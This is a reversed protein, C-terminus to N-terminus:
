LLKKLYRGTYSKSSAAVEKPTGTVVVEGGNDGGEPGIDIVHDAVKVVDLNHEIVILSNGKEVLRNLVSLLRQIDDFHLGTTPEDLIYMTRGTARRSLETALKIRQAEGGSLTTASQGLRMYSLGVDSLTKLKDHISPINEFFTLAYEVTMDLVQAINKGKYEVELADDNYRLGKCEECEVYVDPLFHMEIKKVGDGQCAECRGGKVNFSFRGAKYGRVKAESTNAFLDRIATFAGTYTAPNSRPTRGIPSQDIIVVKNLHSLGEIKAHRGPLQRSRHYAMLLGKALISNVLSSKGSGSVGTVCVFMGLPFEVDIKKLNNEEAGRVVIKKGNGKRYEKPVAISKKGSLYQATATDLKMVEKPAGQGVVKGGNEGAGPGIDILQDAALMMEEDHEVVLVTNGLDRLMALTQILRMNDRQHLGISPEDLVYLVGVLKSGIQTALRIRQAEGGSLTTASRDLTLYQLGVDVLFNLRHIIEQLIPFAIRQEEKSFPTTKVGFIKEFFPLVDSINDSVVDYIGTGDIRVALAEKILRQGKCVPCQMTRMYGEIEKRVYDSDTERYRRELQPVVGEYRVNMEYKAKSGEGAVRVTDGEPQGHLVIDRHAKSLKNFPTSVSFGYRDAVETLIRMNWTQRTATKSWPRIAGEAITLSPNPVILQEDVELRTGLGTCASCAGHPSNFSFLRPEVEPLNIECSDCAFRESFSLDITTDKEEDIVEVMVFGDSLKLATEVSDVIRPRDLDEPDLVIRDVVIEISHKKQKNLSLQLAEDVEYVDGDVRVRVYGKKKVDEFVRKHEGKRDRVVPSMIILKNEAPLDVLRQVIVQSSQQSVEKGCDPCHPTGVRAFLLRLYDCVETITGVTSRPNRSVSKQDIAIAPSLGDIRDVDPKDMVGLFQRAYASLSEVYRRQGEAYITDFALSSKGSGSLGTIVVLQNRPIDININKLNHVRAGHVSIVGAGGDRTVATATSKSALRSSSKRSSSSSSKKAAVM